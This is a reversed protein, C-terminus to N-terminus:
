CDEEDDFEEDGETPIHFGIVPQKIELSEETEQIQKQYETIKLNIATKVLALLYAIIECVSDIITTGITGFLFGIFFLKISIM